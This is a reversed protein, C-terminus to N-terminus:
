SKPDEKDISHDSVAEGSDRSENGAAHDLIEQVDWLHMKGDRGTTALSKGDPSFVASTVCGYHANFKALLKWNQSDWLCIEGQDPAATADYIEMGSATAVLSGDPSCDVSRVWQRHEKPLEVCTSLKVDWAKVSQDEGASLLTGRPSFALASVQKSGHQLPEHTMEGTQPDILMILGSRTGVALVKSDADLALSTPSGHESMVCWRTGRTSVDIMSILQEHNSAVALLKGDNSLAIRAASFKSNEPNASDPEFVIRKMRKTPNWLGLEPRGEVGMCTVLTTTDPLFAMSEQFMYGDGDRTADLKGLQSFDSLRWVRVGFPKLGVSAIMGEQMPSFTSWMSWDKHVAFTVRPSPGESSTAFATPLADLSWIRTTNDNSSTILTHADAGFTLSTINAWHAHFDHLVEGSAVEWVRITHFSGGAALTKGAPDFAIASLGEPHSLSHIIHGKDVDWLKVSCDNSASALTKGNPSFTLDNIAGTHGHLTTKAEWTSTDWITVATDWLGGVALHAEDPSFALAGVSGQCAQFSKVKKRTALDWIEITGQNNGSALLGNAQSVAVVCIKLGSEILAVPPKESAPNWLKLAGNVSGFALWDAKPSFAVSCVIYDQPPMRAFEKWTGNDSRWVILTGNGAATALLDGGPSLAVDNVCWPQGLLEQIPVPQPEPLPFLMQTCDLQLFAVCGPEIQVSGSRVLKSDDRIEIRHRGAPLLRYYSGEGSIPAVASDPVSISYHSSRAWKNIAVYLLGPEPSLPTTNNDCTIALCFMSPRELRSRQLDIAVITKDPWPNEWCCHYFEIKRDKKASPANTGSWAVEARTALQSADASCYWERLHRGTVVPMSESTGDEYHFIYTAIQQGLVGYSHTTGHLFHVKQAKCNVEIGRVAEPCNHVYLGALQVYRRGIRFPIEGFQFPGPTLAALNNAPADTGEELFHTSKAQIDVEFFRPDAVSINGGSKPGDIGELTANVVEPRETWRDVARFGLIGLLVVAMSAVALLWWKGRAVPERPPLMRAPLSVRSPQQVHALYQGLVHAVEDATQFRDEPKKELLRDIIAVLGSRFRPTSKM